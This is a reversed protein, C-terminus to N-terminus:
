FCTLIISQSILNAVAATAMVSTFWGWQPPPADEERKGQCVGNSLAEGNAQKEVDEGQREEM